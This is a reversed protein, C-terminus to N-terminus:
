LQNAMYITHTPYAMGIKEKEFESKIKLLVKQNIDMYKNYDDSLVYYILEFALASNDFKKFHARDFRTLKEDKIIDKLIKPIKKIQSTPTEYLIGFEVTARREKMKGYNQIDLSTLEKNSMVVEEGDLSRIRTTKIGIKEVTGKKSGVIIFDGPVFPKDFLIAFSSFLDGLINQLALAIAIGGIGLGAILSTINVGLNSLVMLGGLSWLIGKSIKGLLKIIQDSGKQKDKKLAKEVLYEILIQIAKVAQYVIWVILLINIVKKAFDNILLTNLALYFALYSYFPPRLSMFIRILADDVDTKTKEAVRKLKFLIISQFIKFLIILGLFALAALAYDEITNGFSGYAWFDAPYLKNLM